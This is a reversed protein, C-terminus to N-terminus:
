SRRNGNPSREDARELWIERWWSYLCRPCGMRFTSYRAQCWVGELIVGPTKLFTLRGTREDIFREVRAQIRYVGGCYPVLEADFAMGRNKLTTTNLNELRGNKDLSRLIEAKSRVEVWDGARLTM